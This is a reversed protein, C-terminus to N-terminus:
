FTYLVVLFINPQKQGYDKALDRATGFLASIVRVPQAVSIDNSHKGKVLVM